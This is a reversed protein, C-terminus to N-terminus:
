TSPGSEPPAESETEASSASEEATSEDEEEPLAMYGAKCYAVALDVVMGYSRSGASQGQTQLYTDNIADSIDAVKNEEYKEFFENYAIMEYRIRADTGSLLAFYRESDAQYLASIVYEYLNMYGSYRIYPDDSERCVLFAVFNAEDERAIGRQHALEHAATYPLTYDPFNINLNSEGTFYTYIGSIHTYTMPESLVIQKITSRFAPLFPYKKGAALYADQLKGNMEEISYPMVSAGGYRFTLDKLIGKLHLLLTGATEELEEASVAQRPMDLKEDLTRGRYGASFGLTFSSFFFSSAALLSFAYRLMERVSRRSVRFIGIVLFIVVVPLLMLLTEALSFPFWGTLKALVMRFFAGPYRNYFDAFDKSLLFGVQLLLCVGALLFFGWAPKPCCSFLKSFFGKVKKMNM